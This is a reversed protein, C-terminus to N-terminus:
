TNGSVGDVPVPGALVEACVARGAVSAGQQVQAAAAGRAGEGAGADRLVELSGRHPAAAV